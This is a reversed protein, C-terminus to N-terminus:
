VNSKGGKNSYKMQGLQIKYLRAYEKNLNILEEHSGEEVIQGNKLVIIQDALEANTFRHTVFLTIASKINSMLNGFFVYESSPDLSATPEDFIYISANRFLCRSIALKQWQGGSLQIGNDFWTGVQQFYKNPLKDIFFDAGSLKGARKMQEINNFENIDGLTINEKVTFEYNNYDQFVISLANQYSELNLKNLDIGNVLITGEYNKYLGSIIKILTTKGSGNEGVLAYIKGKSFKLNM